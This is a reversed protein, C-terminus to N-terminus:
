GAPSRRIKPIVCGRPRSLAENRGVSENISDEVIEGYGMGL